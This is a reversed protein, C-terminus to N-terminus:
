LERQASKAMEVCGNIQDDIMKKESGRKLYYRESTEYGKSFAKFDFLLSPDRDLFRGLSVAGGEAEEYPLAGVGHASKLLGMCFSIERAKELNVSFEAFLPTASITLILLANRFMTKAEFDKDAFVQM